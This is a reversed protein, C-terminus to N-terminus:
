LDVRRAEVDPGGPRVFAFAPRQACAQVEPEVAQWLLEADPGYLYLVAEGNGFEDGDFEGVGARAVVDALRDGLDGLTAREAESGFEDDSLPFHVLVAHDEGAPVPSPTRRFLGM